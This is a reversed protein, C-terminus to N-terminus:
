HFESQAVSSSKQDIMGSPPRHQPSTPSTIVKKKSILSAVIPSSRRKPSRGQWSQLICKPFDVEGRDARPVVALM